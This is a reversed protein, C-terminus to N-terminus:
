LVYPDFIGKMLLRFFRAHAELRSTNSSAVKPYQFFNYHKKSKKRRKLAQIEASETSAARKTSIVSIKAASEASNPPPDTQPRRAEGNFNESPRRKRKKHIIVKDIQEVSNNCSDVGGEVIEGSGKEPSPHKGNPLSQQRDPGMDSNTM